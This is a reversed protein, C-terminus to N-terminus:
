EDRVKIQNSGDSDEIDVDMGDGNDEDDNEDDRLPGENDDTNSDVDDKQAKIISAWSTIVPKTSLREDGLAGSIVWSLIAKLNPHEKEVARLKLVMTVFRGLAFDVLDKVSNNKYVGEYDEIFGDAFDELSIIGRPVRVDGIVDLIERSPRHDNAINVFSGYRSILNICAMRLKDPRAAMRSTTVPAHYSGDVITKYPIGDYAGLAAIVNTAVNCYKAAESLLSFDVPKVVSPQRKPPEYPAVKSPSPPPNLILQDEDYKKMYKKAYEASGKGSMNYSCKKCVGGDDYEHQDGLPCIFEYFALVNGAKERSIIAARIKDDKKKEEEVNVNVLLYGSKDMWLPRGSSIAGEKYSDDYTWPGKKGAPRTYKGFRVWVRKEGDDTYMMSLAASQPLYYRRSFPIPHSIRCWLYRMMRQALKEAAMFAVVTGTSYYGKRVNEDGFKPYANTTLEYMAPLAAKTYSSYMDSAAMHLPTMFRKLPVMKKPRPEDRSGEKKMTKPAIKTSKVTWRVILDEPLHPIIGSVDKVMTPHPTLGIFERVKIARKSAKANPNALKYPAVRDITKLVNDASDDGYLHDSLYWMFSNNMWIDTTVDSIIAQSIAGKKLAAIAKYANLLDNALIQPSLGGARRVHIAMTDTITKVSFNLMKATETAGPTSKDYALSVKVVETADPSAKGSEIAFYVFAAFIHIANNLRKKSDIEDASNGRSSMIKSNMSSVVPWILNLVARIFGSRNVLNDFTVYKTMFSITTWLESVEPDEDKELYGIAADGVVADFASIGIIIEGCVRCVFNGEVKDPYIYGSLLSKIEPMNKMESLARQHILSHPCILPFSCKKCSVMEDTTEGVYEDLMKLRDAKDDASVAMYVSAVIKRHPCPNNAMGSLRKEDDTIARTIMEREADKMMGLIEDARTERSIMGVLKHARDHPLRSHIYEILIARRYREAENHEEISKDRSIIDLRDRLADLPEDYETGMTLANRFDGYGLIGLNSGFIEKPLIFDRGILGGLTKALSVGESDVIPPRRDTVYRDRPPYVHDPPYSVRLDDYARSSVWSFFTNVAEQHMGAVDFVRSQGGWIGDDISDSSLLIGPIPVESTKYVPKDGTYVRIYLPRISHNSPNGTTYKVRGGSIVEVPFTIPVSITEDEHTGSMIGVIFPRHTYALLIISNIVNVEPLLSKTMLRHMDLLKNVIPITETGSLRPEYERLYRDRVEDPMDLLGLADQTKEIVEIEQM